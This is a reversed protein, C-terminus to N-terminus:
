SPRSKAPGWTRRTLKRVSQRITLNLREVFSPNIRGSLGAQRLRECYQKAEGVLMRREVEVTKRRRQHQIVQSYVFDRLLVWV